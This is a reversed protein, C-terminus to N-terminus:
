KKAYRKSNYTDRLKRTNVKSCIASCTKCRMARVGYPLRHKNVKKKARLFYKGCLCKVRDFKKLILKNPIGQM